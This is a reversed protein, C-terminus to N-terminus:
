YSGVVNVDDDGSKFKGKYLGLPHFLNQGNLFFFFVVLLAKNWHTQVEFRVVYADEM